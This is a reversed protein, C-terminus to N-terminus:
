GVGDATKFSGGRSRIIKELYDMLRSHHFGVLGYKLRLADLILVGVDGSFDGNRYNPDSKIVQVIRSDLTISIKEKM